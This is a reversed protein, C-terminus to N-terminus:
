SRRLQGPHMGPPSGRTATPASSPGSRRGGRRPRRRRGHPPGPHGREVGRSAPRRRSRAPPDGPRLHRVAPGPRHVHAPAPRLARWAPAAGRRGQRDRRDCCCSLDSSGAARRHPRRSGGPSWRAGPGSGGRAPRHGSPVHWPAPDTNDHGWRIPHGGHLAHAATTQLRVSSRRNGAHAARTTRTSTRASLTPKPAHSQAASGQGLGVASGPGLHGVEAAPLHGDLVRGPDDRLVHGHAARDPHEVHGM